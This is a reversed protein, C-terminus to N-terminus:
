TKRRATENAIRIMEVTRSRNNPVAVGPWSVQHAVNSHRGFCPRHRDCLVEPRDPHAAECLDGRLESRHDEARHQSM